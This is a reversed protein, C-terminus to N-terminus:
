NTYIVGITYNNPYILHASAHKAQTIIYIASMKSHWWQNGAFHNRLFSCLFEMSIALRWILEPNLAQSKYSIHKVWDSTSGVDPYHHMM